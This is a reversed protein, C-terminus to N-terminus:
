TNKRGAVTGVTGLLLLTLTLLNLITLIEFWLVLYFSTILTGLASGLTSYFYLNGATKGSSHTTEVLLRVSYPSIMGLIVTPITFLIISAILSGYRPDHITEFVYQMVVEGFITLPYMTIAAIFFIYSFRKISPEKLSLRGGWLYGFSLSLMFITIISGWVYISSGFYPAMIRGGLLELSMIVFGGTFALLYIVRNLNDLQM